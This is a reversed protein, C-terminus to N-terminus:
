ALPRGGTAAVEERPVDAAAAPTGVVGTDVLLARHGRREICQRLYQAERGKTDLTALVIITKGSMGNGEARSVEGSVGPFGGPAPTARPRRGSLVGRHPLSLTPATGGHGHSAQR